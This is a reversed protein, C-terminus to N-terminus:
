PLAGHAGLIGAALAVASIMLAIAHLRIALTFARHKYRVAFDHFACHILLPELVYVMLAFMLWVAIMLHIWWSARPSQLLDWANLRWVMYAGSAGALLISIRVQITFPREFAEFSALAQVPDPIRRARPLVITTVAAVGGLWHMLCLVHIARALAIDIPMM